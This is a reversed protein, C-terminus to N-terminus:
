AKAHKANLITSGPVGRKVVRSWAGFSLTLTLYGVNINNEWREYKGRETVCRYSIIKSLCEHNKSLYLHTAQRHTKMHTGHTKMHTGDLEKKDGFYRPTSSERISWAISLAFITLFREVAIQIFGQLGMVSLPNWSSLEKRFKEM